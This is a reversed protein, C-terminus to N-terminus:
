WKEPKYDFFPDQYLFRKHFARKSVTRLHKMLVRVTNPSMRLDVKMYRAFAEVM